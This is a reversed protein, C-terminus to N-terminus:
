LAKKPPRRAGRKQGHTDRGLHRRLAVRVLHSVTCNEEFAAEEVEEMESVSLRFEVRCDRPERGRLNNSM